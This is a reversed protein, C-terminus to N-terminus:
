KQKQSRAENYFPPRIGHAVAFDYPVPADVPAALVAGLGRARGKQLAACGSTSSSDMRLAHVPYLTLPM